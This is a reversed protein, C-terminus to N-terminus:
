NEGYLPDHITSPTDRVPEFIENSSKKQVVVPRKKRNLEERLRANEQRAKYAQWRAEEDVTDGCGALFGVLLLSSLALLINKRM